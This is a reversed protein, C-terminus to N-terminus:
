LKAKPSSVQEAAQLVDNIDCHNGWAEERHDYIVGQTGAGVVFTGGLLRGEGISNGPVNKQKSRRLNIWTSVRLIGVGLGMWRQDPGYFRKENDLFIDGKFFDRFKDVGLTEHVM